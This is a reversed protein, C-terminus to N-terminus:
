EVYDVILDSHAYAIGGVGAVAVSEPHFIINIGSDKKLIVRSM